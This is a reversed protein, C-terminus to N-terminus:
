EYRKQDQHRRMSREEHSLSNIREQYDEDVKRITGDPLVYLNGRERGISERGFYGDLLANVSAFCEERHNKATTAIYLKRGEDKQSRLFEPVNPYLGVPEHGWQGLTKDKDLFLIDITM